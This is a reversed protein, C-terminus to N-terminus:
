GKAERIESIKLPADATEVRDQGDEDVYVHDYRSYDLLRREREAALLAALKKPDKAVAAMRKSTGLLMPDAKGSELSRDIREFTIGRRSARRQQYSGALVEAEQRNRALLTVIQDGAKSKYHIRFRKLQEAM